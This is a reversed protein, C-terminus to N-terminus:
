QPLASPHARQASGGGKVRLRGEKSRHMQRRSTVIGRGSAAGALMAM